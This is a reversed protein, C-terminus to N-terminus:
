RNWPCLDRVAIDVIQTAHDPGIEPHMRVFDGTINARGYGENMLDCLDLGQALEIPQGNSDTIGAAALDALFARRGCGPGQAQLCDPAPNAYAVPEVSLAMVAWGAMCVIGVRQLVRRAM